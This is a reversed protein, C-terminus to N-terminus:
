LRTYYLGPRPEPDKGLWRGSPRADIIQVKKGNVDSEAIAKIEEFTSIMSHDLDVTPYESKGIPKEPGSETPHGEDVWQKFNNLLHM